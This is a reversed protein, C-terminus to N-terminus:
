REWLEKVYVVQVDKLIDGARAIADITTTRPHGIAIAYGKQKARKVAQKLQGHIYHIDPKNDLFTDRKLIKVGLEDAAAQAQSNISTVSDVFRFNYKKMARFLRKMAAKDATFRSGTHNNIYRANKFTERLTKIKKEIVKYSDNVLLTGPEPRVYNMAEMPLHVMYFDLYKPYKHTHPHIDNPPFLSQTIPYPLANISDIQRKFSVDDLLIALRPKQPPKNLMPKPLDNQRKIPEVKPESAPDKKLSEEYDKIESLYHEEEKEIMPKPTKPATTTNKEDLIDKMKQVIKQQQAAKEKQVVKHADEEFLKENIVTTYIEYGLFSVTLTLLLIVLGTMMKDFVHHQQKAKKHRKKTKKKL